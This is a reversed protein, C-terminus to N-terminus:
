SPVNFHFLWSIVFAFVMFALLINLFRHGQWLNHAESTAMTESPVTAQIGTSGTPGNLEHILEVEDAGVINQAISGCIECTKKTTLSFM